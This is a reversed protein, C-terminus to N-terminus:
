LNEKKTYEHTILYPIEVKDKKVVFLYTQNDKNYQEHVELEDITYKTEYNRPTNSVIIFIAFPIIIILILIIIKKM